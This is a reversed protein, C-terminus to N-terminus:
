NRFLIEENYKTGDRLIHYVALALKHAVISYAILKEGKGRHRRRQREYFRQIKPYNKVAYVAAQSFAWKLYSSGQKSGRGKKCSTGSQAVGTVVRSYSSFDRDSPFRSIDGVEYFITIALIKGIGPIDLLRSYKLSDKITESIKGEMERIQATYLRIRALEHKANLQIWPNRFLGEIDEEIILKIDYRRYDLTGQQLLLRGLSVYEQARLNVVRIRRRALDRVPRTEKPYVYAKPIMGARLLKALALADRPDTKVKAGTIMSLGLTHALCVEYGGEQLGDVLWYWNFTSEVVCELTKKFPALLYMIDELDNRVKQQVLVKMRGDIVCM